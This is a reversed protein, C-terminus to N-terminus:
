KKQKIEITPSIQAIEKSILISRMSPVNGAKFMFKPLLGVIKGTAPYYKIGDMMKQLDAKNFKFTSKNSELANNIVSFIKNRKKTNEFGGDKEDSIVVKFFTPGLARRLSSATNSGMKVTGSPNDTVVNLEKLIQELSIM